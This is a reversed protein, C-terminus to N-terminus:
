LTSGQLIIKRFLNLEEYSNTRYLDSKLYKDVPMKCMYLLLKINGSMRFHKRFSTSTMCAVSLLKM